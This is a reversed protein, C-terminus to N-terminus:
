NPHGSTISTNINALQPQELSVKLELIIQCCVLQKLSSIQPEPPEKISHKSIAFPNGHVQMLSTMSTYTDRQPILFLLPKKERYYNQQSLSSHCHAIVLLDILFLDPYFSLSYLYLALFFSTASLPPAAWWLMKIKTCMYSDETSHTM